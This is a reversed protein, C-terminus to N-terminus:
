REAVRILWVEAVQCGRGAGGLGPTRTWELTLAGTRTAERPIDFELPAVPNPKDRYGHVEINNATMRVPVRTDGAYVVRVRYRASTDLGDYHMRLPADFMSGADTYWSVRWGQDPYRAGVGTFATNRFEPDKDFGEGRVLHPEQVPNGLDDYFGGPGPNTWNLIADIKALRETETNLARIEAFREKLWVRDNLGFDIGDLNAGRRLGIARYRPVSLQMRISNFLGEALEFVRARLERTRETRVGADLINEAANVAALTAGARARQLEGTAREEQETEAILRSRLFADYHARYQAQQFRWNGRMQPTANREMDEFQLLTTDVASNSLLPGKWNRELALLGERFGDAVTDGIFFRSYETLIGKVDAKPDWGLGSWVFKNVDDNCGESYTVFGATYPQNVRFIVAEGLPRPNITERGETLSYAPDWEPVPYQSAFSHTIDPYFRIAYRKPTRERLEPLPLRSQPGFVIGTLWAPEAQVIGLFENMWERNFGQPAVWMQAKPHYKRLSATQKELMPMLYKPQTHGPDGGPVFVADIRPLRKFVEAWEKLASEVTAPDSYAKDMAPYWISVDLGYEDCIRSMEVMMEMPPLPFHPSDADDDSRPPILEVTNTGFIALERIYQEWMPVSWADYSNTKPRYGLQHGRIAVKPSTNVNLAAPLEVRQRGMRLQRLLYGAGFVVGRGDHGAVTVTGADSTTIRFGEPTGAERTLVIAAGSAPQTQIKLRLQTRKEIEETLMQAAKREQMSASGSTVIVAQRLDLGAGPAPWALLACLAAPACFRVLM